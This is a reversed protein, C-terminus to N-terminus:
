SYSRDQMELDQNRGQQPNRQQSSYPGSPEGQPAYPQNATFNPPPPSQDPRSQALDDRDSPSPPAIQDAPVEPARRWPHPQNPDQASAVGTLALLGALGFVRSHSALATLLPQATM